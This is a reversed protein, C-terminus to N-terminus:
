ESSIIESFYIIKFYLKYTYIVIKTDHKIKRKLSIETLCINAIQKRMKIMVGSKIKIDIDYKIEM